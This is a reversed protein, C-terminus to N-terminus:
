RYGININSSLSFNYSNNHCYTLTSGDTFSFTFAISYIVDPEMTVLELQSVTVWESANENQSESQCYNDNNNM